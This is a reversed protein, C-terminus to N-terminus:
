EPARTGAAPALASQTTVLNSAAAKIVQYVITSTDTGASSNFTYGTGPTIVYSLHGVTGGTLSRNFLLTDSALAATNAVAITGGSLVASGTLGCANDLINFNNQLVPDMSPFVQLKLNNTLNAM